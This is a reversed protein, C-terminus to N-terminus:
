SRSKTHRKQRQRRHRQRVQQWNITALELERLANVATTLSKILFAFAKILVALSVLIAVTEAVLASVASM